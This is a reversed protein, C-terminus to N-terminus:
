EPDATVIELHDGVIRSSLGHPKLISALLEEATSDQSHVTVLMARKADPISQTNDAFQIRVGTLSSITQCVEKLPVSEASFKRVQVRLRASLDSTSKAATAVGAEEAAPSAVSPLPQDGITIEEQRENEADYSDEEPLRLDQVGGGESPTAQPELESSNAEALMSTTDDTEPEPSLVSNLPSADNNNSDSPDQASAASVDVATAEATAALSTEPEDRGVAAWIAIGMCAVLTAM